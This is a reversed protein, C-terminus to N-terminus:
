LTRYTNRISCEDMQLKKITANITFDNNRQAKIGTYWPMTPLKSHILGIISQPITIYNINGFMDINCFDSNAIVRRKNGIGEANIYLSDIKYETQPSVMSFNSIRLQGIIDSIDNGEIDATLKMSFKTQPWKDSLNLASPSFDKINANLNQIKISNKVNVNGALNIQANPDNLALKGEINGNDYTGDVM